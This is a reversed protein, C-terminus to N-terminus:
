HLKRNRFPFKRFNILSFLKVQGGIGPIHATSIPNESIWRGSSARPFPSFRLSTADSAELRSRRGDKGLIQITWRCYSSEMRQLLDMPKNVDTKNLGTALHNTKMNQRKHHSFSSFLPKVQQIGFGKVSSSGGRFLSAM